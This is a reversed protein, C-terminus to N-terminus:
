LDLKKNVKEIAWCPLAVILHLIDTIIPTCWAVLAVILLGELTFHRAILLYAVGCWWTMCLECEFPKLPKPANQKGGLLRYLLMTFSGAAGSQVWFCCLLAIIFVTCIEEHIM